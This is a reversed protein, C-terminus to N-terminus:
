AMQCSAAARPYVRVARDGHVQLWEILRDEAREVRDPRFGERDREKWPLHRTRSSGRLGAICEMDAMNLVAPTPAGNSGGKAKPASVPQIGLFGGLCNRVERWDGTALRAAALEIRVQRVVRWGLATEEDFVAVWGSAQYRANREARTEAM